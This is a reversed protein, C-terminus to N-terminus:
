KRKIDDVYDDIHKFIDYKNSRVFELKNGDQLVLIKVDFQEYGKSVQDIDYGSVNKLKIKEEEWSFIELNEQKFKEVNKKDRLEYYSTSFYGLDKSEIDQITNESCILNGTTKYMYYYFDDKKKDIKKVKSFDAVFKKWGSPDLNEYTLPHHKGTVKLESKMQEISGKENDIEIVSDALSSYVIYVIAFATFALSLIKGIIKAKTKLNRRMSDGNKVRWSIRIVGIISSLILAAYCPIMIMIAIINWYGFSAVLHLPVDLYEPEIQLFVIWAILAIFIVIQLIGGFMAEQRVGEYKTLDRYIEETKPDDTTFVNLPSSEIYEWGKNSYYRIDGKEIKNVEPFVRYRRECPDGSEFKAFYRGLSILHWGQRSKEELWSELYEFDGISFPIMKRIISM